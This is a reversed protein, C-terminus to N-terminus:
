KEGGETKFKLGAKKIVDFAIEDGTRTDKSQTKHRTWSWYREKVGTLGTSYLCDAIYVRYATTEREEELKAVAYRM